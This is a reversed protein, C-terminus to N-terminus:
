TQYKIDVECESLHKNKVMELKKDIDQTRDHTKRVLHLTQMKEQM